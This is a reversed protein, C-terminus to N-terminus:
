ASYTTQNKITCDGTAVVYVWRRGGADFAFVEVPEGDLHGTARYLLPGLDPNGSRVDNECAVTKTAMTTAASDNATGAAGSASGGGSATPAEVAQGASSRSPSLASEITNKLTRVDIDGLDGGDLVAAAFTSSEPAAARKSTDAGSGASAARSSDGGGSSGRLGAVIGVGALVVMAAAVAPLWRPM